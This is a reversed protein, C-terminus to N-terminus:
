RARGTGGDRDRVADFREVAHHRTSAGLKRRASVLHAQVTRVTIGLRRAIDPEARGEGVLELM